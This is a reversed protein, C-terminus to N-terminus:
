KFFHFLSELHLCSLFQHIKATTSIDQRHFKNINIDIHWKHISNNKNLNPFYFFVHFMKVNIGKLYKLLAHINGPHSYNVLSFVRYEVSTQCVAPTSTVFPSAM